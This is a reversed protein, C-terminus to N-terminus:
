PKPPAAAEASETAEASQRGPRHGLERAYAVCLEAELPRDSARLATALHHYADGNRPELELARRFAALAAEPDGLQLHALGQNTHALALAPDAEAARRNAELAEAFEWRAFHLGGLNVWAGACRPDLEVAARLEREAELPAGERLLATGLRLHALATPPGSELAHRLALLLDRNM